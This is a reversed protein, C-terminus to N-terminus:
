WERKFVSLNHAPDIYQWIPQFNDPSRKTAPLLFFLELDFRTKNNYLLMIFLGSFSMCLLGLSLVLYSHNLLLLSSCIQIEGFQKEWSLFRSDLTLFGPIYWSPSIPAKLNCFRSSHSQFVEFSHVSHLPEKKVM